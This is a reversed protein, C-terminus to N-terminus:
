QTVTLEVDDILFSTARSSNEVGRFQLRITQGKYASLDFSRQVYASSRDRNSYTALTGLVTGATNRVTVTLTDRAPASTTESTAIRLWFGLNAACADVPVTVQQHLDDTHTRGYGNMWAKWQGSRAPVSSSDDIVGASATWATAGSEFGPNALLQTSTSCAPLPEAGNATEASIANSAAMNGANDTAVADFVQSGDEVSASDWNVEYPSSTDAGVIRNNVRFEVKAIGSGGDEDSADAALSVTGRLTASATPATLTVLPPTTDTAPAAIFGTYLLRNPSGRGAGSVRNLSANSTL